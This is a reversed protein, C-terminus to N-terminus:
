DTKFLGDFDPNKNKSTKSRTSFSDREGSGYDVRTVVFMRSDIEAVGDLSGEVFPVGCSGRPEALSVRATVVKVVAECM